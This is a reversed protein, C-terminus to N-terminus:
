NDKGGEQENGNLTAQLVWTKTKANFSYIKRTDVEHFLSGTAVNETEKEDTSEGATLKFHVGKGIYKKVIDTM